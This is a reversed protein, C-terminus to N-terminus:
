INLTELINKLHIELREKWDTVEENTIVFDWYSPDDPLEGDAGDDNYPQSPRDVLIKVLKPCVTEISKDNAYKEFLSNFDNYENPFRFDSIIGVKTESEFINKYTAWAWVPLWVERSQNGEHILVDRVTRGNLHPPKLDKYAQDNMRSYELGYKDAVIRKLKDAFSQRTYTIRESQFITELIDCCVDKGMGARHGLLLIHTPLDM